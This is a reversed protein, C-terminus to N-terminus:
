EIIAINKSQVEHRINNRESVDFQNNNRLKGVEKNQVIETKLRMMTEMDVEGDILDLVSSRVKMWIGLEDLFLCLSSFLIMFLALLMGELAYKTFFGPISPTEYNVTLLLMLFIFLTPAILKIISLPEVVMRTLLPTIPYGLFTDGQNKDYYISDGRYQSYHLRNDEIGKICDRFHSVGFKIIIVTLIFTPNILLLFIILTFSQIQGQFFSGDTPLKLLLSYSSDLYGGDNFRMSLILVNSLLFFFICTLFSFLSFAREGMNKRLLLRVPISCSSVAFFYVHFMANILMNHKPSMGLFSRLAAQNSM